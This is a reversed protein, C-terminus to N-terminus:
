RRPVSDRWGLARWASTLEHERALLRHMDSFREIQEAGAHRVVLEYGAGDAVLRIEYSIRQEGRALFYLMLRSNLL